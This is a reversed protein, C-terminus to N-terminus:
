NFVLCSFQAAQESIKEIEEIPSRSAIKLFNGELAEAFEEPSLTNMPVYNEPHFTYEWPSENVCIYAGATKFQQLKNLLHSKNEQLYRGQLHLTVSAENGWWVMTRLALIDTRSFYRPYDLIFYPLGKYNEGKSIKVSKWQIGEHYLAIPQDSLQEQIARHAAELLVILKASTKRKLKLFAQDGLCKM